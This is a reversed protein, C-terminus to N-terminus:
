QYYQDGPYGYTERLSPLPVEVGTMAEQTCYHCQGNADRRGRHRDCGVCWRISQAHHWDCARTASHNFHSVTAPFPTEGKLRACELCYKQWQPQGARPPPPPPPPPQYGNMRLLSPYPRHFSHHQYQLQRDSPHTNKHSSSISRLSNSSTM